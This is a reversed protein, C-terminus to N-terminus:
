SIWIITKNTQETRMTVLNNPLSDFLHVNKSIPKFAPSDIEARASREPM